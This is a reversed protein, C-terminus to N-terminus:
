EHPGLSRTVSGAAVGFRGAAGRVARWLQRCDSPKTVFAERLSCAEMERFYHLFILAAVVYSTTAAVSAGIVGWHPLLVVNLLVDVGAALGFVVVGLQPRGGASIYHWTVNMTSWAVTGVLLLRFAPAADAFAPGFLTRVLPGSILGLLGAVGVTLLTLLRLAVAPQGAKLNGAAFIPFLMSGIENSLRVIIEAMGVAVSYIGLGKSGLYLLVIFFDIRQMLYLTIDSALQRSGFGFSRRALEWSFGGSAPGIRRAIVQFVAYCVVQAAVYASAFPIVGVHGLLYLGGYGFLPLTLSVSGSAKSLEYRHLGLFYQRQYILLVGAAISIVGVLMVPRPLVTVAEFGLARGGFFYTLGVVGGILMSFPVANAMFHRLWQPDKSAHYLQGQPVGLAAVVWLGSVTAMFLSFMGKGEVGLLRSVLVSSVFVGVFGVCSIIVARIM